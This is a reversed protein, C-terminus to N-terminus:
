ESASSIVANFVLVSTSSSNQNADTPMLLNFVAAFLCCIEDIFDSTGSNLTPLTGPDEKFTTMSAYALALYTGTLGRAVALRTAENDLIICCAAIKLRTYCRFAPQQQQQGHGAQSESSWM